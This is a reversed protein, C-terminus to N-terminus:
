QYQLKNNCQQTTAKDRQRQRTAHGAKNTRTNEIIMRGPSEGSKGKNSNSRDKKGRNWDEGLLSVEKDDNGRLGTKKEMKGWTLHAGKKDEGVQLIPRREDERM